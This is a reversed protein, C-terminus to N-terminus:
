RWRRIAAPVLWALLIVYLLATWFSFLFDIEYLGIGIYIAACVLWGLFVELQQRSPLPSRV